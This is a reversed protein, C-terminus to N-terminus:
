IDPRTATLYMLSGIMGRHLTDNVLKGALDPGINNPPVMLTKVLSSDSIEYKKLLNRTYQEQCISIEIDDHKIQLGLFYTLEGIMSIEFKTTMLKEFQKCLEYSTSGFIIDDVYVQVLLGKGKSRSIFLTNDIRGRVFKNQILFTYLTEYCAKPAQKLGYIAKDLKCVYDPFESSEVGPPEQMADVWGQHKLAESVKKPEIEYLFDAFLCESALATILKGAMSRTLMGEGPDGIINVLEVHQYAIRVAKTWFHKFLVSGNLITRAAEILTRNKREAIGNQKPTYPSSFKHSLRKEDCFSELKSNRFETGNDTIIQKVKVDNQNEVMRSYEDVIVLTYKEHNIFMPSVPGFLDMHFLKAGPQEVYKHLYNKVGTMSRSCRSDLYWIPERIHR